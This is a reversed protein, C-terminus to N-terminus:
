DGQEDKHVTKSAIGNLISSTGKILGDAVTNAKPCKLM